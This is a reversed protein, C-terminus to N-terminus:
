NNGKIGYGGDVQFEGTGRLYTIKKGEIKDPQMGVKLVRYLRAPETETGIFVIQDKAENFTLKDCRATFEKATVVVRRSAEMEQNSKAGENRTLITLQECTLYLAGKPLDNMLTELDINKHPDDSPMDLVRVNGWFKLTNSRSNGYMRNTFTVHTLKMPEEGPTKPAPKPAPKKPDAPAALPDAHGQQYTTVTGPGTAEAENADKGGPMPQDEESKLTNQAFESATLATYKVLKGNEFVEEEIRVNGDCVLHEVKAPQDSAKHGEKLSIPRDFFVQLAECALHDKRQAAQNEGHLENSRLAPKDLQADKGQEAQIGGHFEAFKGNFLMSKNWYVTMPETKETKAGDFTTNSEMQMAGPGTVWAKNAAQDINVINGVIYIKDMLLMAMDHKPDGEVVLLNGDPRYNMELTNGKIDVGKEDPKAPEQTVHVRGMTWVKDLISRTEGRLVWAEVSEATLDIPRAPEKKDPEMPHMGPTLTNGPQAVPPQPRDVSSTPANPGAFPRPAMTNGPGVPPEAKPEPKAAPLLDDPVDKFWVVLRRTDHVNLDRSQALVSNLAELHHPRRTQQPETKDAGAKDAPRPERKAVPVAPSPKDELWVKLTEAQLSQEHEDDVFRAAGTLVLLDYQGDRSTVLRDNWYAHHNTKKTAADYMDIHGPGRANIQQYKKGEPNAKDPPLKQEQIRLELAHIVNDGGKDDGKTARMQPNGKLTTSGTRADHLLDVCHAVLKQSDSTVVVEPGTAHATEIEMGQEPTGEAKSKVPEKKTNPQEQKRRLTLVLRQCILQDQPLTVGVPAGPPRPLTRTVNVDQPFQIPRLPDADPVEFCATDAENEKGFDYQFRGPTKIHIDAKEPIEAPPQKKAAAPEEKTGAPFSSGADVYLHMDVDSQLVIRKVGTISEQKPKRAAPTGPKAPAEALLDMEMGKGDIRIPKPKCQDDQLSVRDHTWILHKDEEYYLPGKNILISLDDTREETRRNNIVVINRNLEAVKLKRGSIDSLNTVPRDFTLYAEECRITNIEPWGKPGTKKGFMALSVRTLLARGSKDEAIQFREAALVMNKSRLELKIPRKLEDCEIGFAQQLKVDVPKPGPPRTPIPPNDTEEPQQYIDPLTPLGDIVGFHSRAYALYGVLYVLFGVVLLVIRRPTWM